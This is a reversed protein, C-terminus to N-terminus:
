KSYRRNAVTPRQYAQGGNAITSRADRWNATTQSARRQRTPVHQQADTKCCLPVPM